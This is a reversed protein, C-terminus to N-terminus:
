IYLLFVGTNQRLVAAGAEDALLLAAPFLEVAGGTVNEGAGGTPIGHAVAHRLQANQIGRLANIVSDHLQHLLWYMGEPM